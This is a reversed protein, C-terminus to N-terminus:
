NGVAVADPCTAVKGAKTLVIAIDACKGEPDIKIHHASKVDLDSWARVLEGSPAYVQVPPVARTFIWVRDDRIEVGYPRVWM